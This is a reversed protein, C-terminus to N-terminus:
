KLVERRKWGNRSIEDIVRSAEEFNVETSEGYKALIAKQKATCRQKRLDDIVASAQRKSYGAATERSVGLNVLFAIQADTSGGRTREMGGAAVAGDHSFPDVAQAKWAVEAKLAMRKEEEEQLLLRAKAKELAKMPDGGRRRLEDAALERVPADYVGGLVDVASVLKHRSNGVFDLALARPKASGAIAARRADATPHGDVTGDLPRLVRGLMQAYLAESKTPRGMGVIAAPPADFGETFVGYNTLFQLDGKSFREIIAAREKPDTEGDVAAACGTRHRNFISALLHAHAVGCTFVLCKRDAGAREILPGAMAQLPEEEILIAELDAANLDGKDEGGRNIRVNSFDVGDIVVFEQDVPVLWGGDIAERIDLKFACTDFVRGLAVEDARNPTATVGVVKMQSNLSRFFDLVKGYSSAVAHHAEDIVVLDFPAKRYKELRKTNVMTQVSGVVVQGGQWLLDGDELGEVGMEVLPAYGLEAGVKDRAQYILEKRHALILVNGRGWGAALKAFVVTKGTGTPLVVLTSGHAELHRRASDHAEQQYPRLTRM